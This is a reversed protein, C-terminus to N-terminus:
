SSSGYECAQWVRGNVSEQGDLPAASDRVGSDAFRLFYQNREYLRGKKAYDRVSRSPCVVRESHYGCPQKSIMAPVVCFLKLCSTGFSGSTVSDRILKVNRRM